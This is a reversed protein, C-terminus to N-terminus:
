DAVYNIQNPIEAFLNSSTYTKKSLRIALMITEALNDIYPKTLYANAGAALGKQKDTEYANGTYFLIPTHLDHERIKRCLELGNGDPFKVDLLYLDFHETQSLNWAEAVTKATITEIDAFGLLISVMLCADENDEAYLVRSHETKKMNEECKQM